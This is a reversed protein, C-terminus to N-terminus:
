HSRISQNKVNGVYIHRIFYINGKYIWQDQMISAAMYASTFTYDINSQLHGIDQLVISAKKFFSQDVLTFSLDLLGLGILLITILMLKAINVIRARKSKVRYELVRDPIDMNEYLDRYMLYFNEEVEAAEGKVMSKHKGYIIENLNETRFKDVREAKLDQQDAKFNSEVISALKQMYALPDAIDNKDRATEFMMSERQSNLSIQYNNQHGRSSILGLRQSDIQESNRRM